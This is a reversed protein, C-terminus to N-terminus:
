STRIMGKGSPNKKSSQYCSIYNSNLYAGGSIVEDAIERGASSTIEKTNDIELLSIRPEEATRDM